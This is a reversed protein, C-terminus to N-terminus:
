LIMVRVKSEYFYTHPVNMISQHMRYKVTLIQVHKPYWRVLKEFLTLMLCSSLTILTPPLQCHDGSFIVRSAKQLPIWCAPELAQAAEDIIFTDFFVGILKKSAVSLNPPGCVLVGEGRKVLQQILEILTETKSAGPYFDM